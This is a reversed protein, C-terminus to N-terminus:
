VPPVTLLFLINAARSASMAPILKVRVRGSWLVERPAAAAGLVKGVRRAFNM